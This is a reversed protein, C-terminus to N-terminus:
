VWGWGVEQAVEIRSYEMKCKMQDWGTSYGVRFLCLSIQLAPKVEYFNVGCSTFLVKLSPQLM